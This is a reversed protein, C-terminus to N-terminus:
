SKLGCEGKVGTQGGDGGVRSCTILVGGGGAAVKLWASVSGRGVWCVVGDGAGLCVLSARGEM